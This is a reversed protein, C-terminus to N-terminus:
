VHARGIEVHKFDVTRRFDGSVTELESTVFPVDSGISILAKVNDATTITPTSYVKVNSRTELTHLLAKLSDSIVSYKFGTTLKSLGFDTGGSREPTGDPRTEASKWNWEVGFQTDKDLTVDIIAVEIFVQTTRKDLKEIMGEIMAFSQPPGTVLLTNTKQEAVVTINKLEAIPGGEQNQNSGGFYMDFFSTPRRYEGRFLSNMTTALDSAKAFKLPFVRTVESLVKPADLKEIMDKFAKMNQETATVIVSNTRIDAVIVNRKLGAYDSTQASSQGGGYGFYPNFGRRGGDDSGQPQEFLKNLQDAVMKADAYKLEFTEAKVEPDTDIDLEEIVQMVLKLKDKSTSIILQNTRNDSAIRIEGKLSVLGDDAKVQPPQGGEQPPRGQQPNAAAPKNIQFIKTLSQELNDASGHQCRYVKVEIIDSTDKDLAQVIEAIRRVNGANDTVILTNTSSISVISAQDSAVLDKLDDKLKASSVYDVQIVQTLLNDTAIIGSPEKGSQVVSRDAVAKKLPSVRIVKSRLDGVMAFGRVRLASNVVEYADELSIQKLSVISVSGSLSSDCVIPISCALSLFRIVSNIDAKDFSMSIKTTGADPRQAAPPPAATVTVKAPEMAPQPKPAPLADKAPAPAPAPKTKPAVKSKRTSSKPKQQKSNRTPRAKAFSTPAKGSAPKEVQSNQKPPVGTVAQASAPSTWALTIFVAAFCALSRM